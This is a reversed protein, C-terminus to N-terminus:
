HTPSTAAFSVSNRVDFLIHTGFKNRCVEFKIWFHFTYKYLYFFRKKKSDYFLFFWFTFFYIIINIYGGSCGKRKQRVNDSQDCDCKIIIVIKGLFFLLLFFISFFDRDRERERDKQTLREREWEWETAPSKRWLRRFHGIWLPTTRPYKKRSDEEDENGRYVWEKGEKWMQKKTGTRKRTSNWECM